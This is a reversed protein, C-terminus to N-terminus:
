GVTEDPTARAWSSEPRKLVERLVVTAYSGRPLEFRLRVAPAGRVEAAEASAGAAHMTLARRVGATTFRPAAPLVFDAAKRGAEQLVAREIEGMAGGAFPCEAGPVLGTVAARGKAVQSSVKDLNAPTVEISHSEDAGGRDELPVVLDGVIPVAIPLGRALRESLIRNFLQSQHAHIFMLFLNRPLALLAHLPKDPARALGELIQREFSLTDPMRRLLEGPDGGARFEARFAAQEASEYASPTGVYAAAAGAFDGSVIAAGVAHTVPRLSGFRQTGYYNALGGPRAAQALTERALAAAEAGTGQLETVAIDFANGELDGLGLSRTTRYSRLIEVEPLRVAREQDKDIKVTMAQTTVARKDKTGAFSVRNRSIQFDRSIRGVLRNTEWNRARVELALYPGDAM